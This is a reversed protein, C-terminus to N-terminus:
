NTNRWKNTDIFWKNTTLNVDKLIEKKDFTKNLDKIELLEMNSM